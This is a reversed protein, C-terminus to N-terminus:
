GPPGPPKTPLGMEYPTGEHIARTAPLFGDPGHDRLDAKTLLPLRALRDFVPVGRGPDRARWSQYAPVEGLAHDLAAAVREPYGAPWSISAAFSRPVPSGQRM